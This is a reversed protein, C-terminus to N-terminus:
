PEQDAGSTSNHSTQQDQAVALLYGTSEADAVLDLRADTTVPGGSTRGGTPLRVFTGADCEDALLEATAICGRTRRLTAETHALLRGRILVRRRLAIYERALNLDIPASGDTPTDGTTAQASSGGSAPGRSHAQNTMARHRLALNRAKMLSWLNERAIPSNLARLARKRNWASFSELADHAVSGASPANPERAYSRVLAAVMRDLLADRRQQISSEVPLM